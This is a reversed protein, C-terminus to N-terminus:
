PAFRVYYGAIAFIRLASGLNKPALIATRSNNSTGKIHADALLIASMGKGSIRWYDDPLADTNVKSTGGMWESLDMPPDILESASTQQKRLPM